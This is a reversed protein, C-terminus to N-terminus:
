VMVSRPAGRLSGRMGYVRLLEDSEQGLRDQIASLRENEAKAREQAVLPDEAQQQPKPAKLFAM